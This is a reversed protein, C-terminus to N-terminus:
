LNVKRKKYCLIRLFYITRKTNAQFKAGFLQSYIFFSCITSFKGFSIQSRVTLWKKLNKLVKDRVKKDKSALLRAFKIEQAIILAKGSKSQKISTGKQQMNCQPIQKKKKQKSSAGPRRAAKKIGM